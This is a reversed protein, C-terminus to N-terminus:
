RYYVAGYVGVREVLEKLLAALEDADDMYAPHKQLCQTIHNHLGIADFINTKEVAYVAGDNGIATLIKLNKRLAFAQLDSPTFSEGSPHTHALAYPADFDPARVRGSGPAGLGETLKHMELDFAAYGETGPPEKSVMTLLRKHANKLQIQQETSLIGSPLQKVNQISQVNIPLSDVKIDNLIDRQAANTYRRYTAGAKAAESRGWSAARLRERNLPLGAAESFRKYEDNLRGLMIQDTQLQKEDKNAADALCRHQVMNIKSELAAQTQGAEYLTYHKGQYTLGEANERKLQELQEITYQASNVGIIIPFAFHKCHLTGIRRQLRSSVRTYEEDTYQKGQIDEHDEACGSHASIEWGDCGLTDHDDQAIELVMDGMRALVASRTAYELSYIRGSKSEVTRIGASAMNRTANRLATTYDQTGTFIQRFAYETSRQYVDNLPLWKGDLTKTRLDGLLAQTEASTIKTYAKIKKDLSGADELMTTNEAAYALLEEVMQGTLATQRLLADSLMKDTVGLLKAQFLQYEVTGKLLAAQNESRALLALQGAEGVRRCFDQLLEEFLPQTITKAIDRVAAIQNPKM